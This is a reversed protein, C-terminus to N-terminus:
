SPFFGRKAVRAIDVRGNGLVRNIEGFPIRDKTGSNCNRFSLQPFQIGSFFRGAQSFSSEDSRGGLYLGKWQLRYSTVSVILLRQELFLSITEGSNFREKENVFHVLKDIRRKRMGKSWSHDSVRSDSLCCSGFENAKWDEGEILDEGAHARDNGGVQNTKAWKM